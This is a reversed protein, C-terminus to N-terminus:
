TRFELPNFGGVGVAEKLTTVVIEAVKQTCTVDGDDVVLNLATIAAFRVMYECVFEFM